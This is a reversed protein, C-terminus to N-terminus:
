VVTEPQISPYKTFNAVPAKVPREPSAPSPTKEAMSALGPSIDRQIIRVTAAPKKTHLKPRWPPRSFTVLHIISPSRKRMATSATWLRM